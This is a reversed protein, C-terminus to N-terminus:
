SAVLPPEFVVLPPACVPPLAPAVLPPEFGLPPAAPATQAYAQSILGALLTTAFAARRGGTFTAQM